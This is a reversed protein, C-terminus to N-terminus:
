GMKYSGIVIFVHDSVQSHKELKMRGYLRDSLMEYVM